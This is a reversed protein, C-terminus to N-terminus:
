AADIVLLLNPRTSVSFSVVFEAWSCHLVIIPAMVCLMVVVLMVVSLTDVFLFYYEASPLRSYNLIVKM